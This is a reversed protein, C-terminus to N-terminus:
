PINIYANLSATICTRCNSVDRLQGMLAPDGLLQLRM